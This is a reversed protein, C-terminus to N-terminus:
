PRVAVVEVTASSGPVQALARDATLLPADLGEALALYLADYFTVNDRYRIAAQLFRGHGHRDMPLAALVSLRVRADEISHVGHVVLRRLVQGVEADLLHPVAVASGQHLIDGFRRGAQHGTGLLYDVVVSADVVIM